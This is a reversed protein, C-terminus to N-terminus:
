IRGRQIKKLDEVFDKVQEYEVELNEVFVKKDLSEDLEIKRNVRDFLLEPVDRKLINDYNKENEPIAPDFINKLDDQLRDYEKELRDRGELSIQHLGSLEHNIEAMRVIKEVVKMKNEAKM